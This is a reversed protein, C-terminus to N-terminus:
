PEQQRRSTSAQAPRRLAALLNDGLITGIVAKELLEDVDTLDDVYELDAQALRDAAEAYNDLWDQDVEMGLARFTAM